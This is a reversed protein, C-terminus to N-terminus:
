GCRRTESVAARVFALAFWSAVLHEPVDLVNAGVERSISAIAEREDCFLTRPLVVVHPRAERMVDCAAPGHPARLIAIGAEMAAAACIAAVTDSVGVLLAVALAPRIGSKPQFGRSSM